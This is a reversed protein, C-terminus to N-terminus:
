TSFLCRMRAVALRLLEWPFEWADKTLKTHHGASYVGTYELIILYVTLIQVLPCMMHFFLLFRTWMQYM